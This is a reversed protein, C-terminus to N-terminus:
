LPKELARWRHTTVPAIFWRNSSKRGDLTVVSGVGPDAQIWKGDGLFAIVHVGDATIALDGPQLSSDDLTAITGKSPLAVTHKRYGRALAKASADFWWQELFGRLMGGDLHRFGYALMADRYARRPLGSCDIGRRSEGGWVYKTRELAEMRRVYDARLADRDIEKEPLFFTLMLLSPAGLVLVRAPYFRWVGLLLGLWACAMIALWVVALVKSHVPQYHMLILGSPVAVSHLLFPRLKLLNM